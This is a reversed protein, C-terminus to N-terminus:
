RRSQQGFMYRFPIAILDGVIYTAFVVAFIPGVDPLRGAILLPFFVAVFWLSKYLLQLLLVPVFMLPKRLGFAALMGFSAYVSAVIGLAIPGDVVWGMMSTTVEPALLLGVGPVGAVATTYVYMVKLWGWRIRTDQVLDNMQSM